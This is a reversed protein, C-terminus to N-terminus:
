NQFVESPKTKLGRFHLLVKTSQYLNLNAAEIM